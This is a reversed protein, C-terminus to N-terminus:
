LNLRDGPYILDPNRIKPNKDAIEHWSKKGSKRAIKTLNDGQKVQYDGSGGGFVNLPNHGVHSHSDHGEDDSVDHHEGRHILNNLKQQGSGIIGKVTREGSGIAGKVRHDVDEVSRRIKVDVDPNKKRYFMAGAIAGAIAAAGGLVPLWPFGGGDEGDDDREERGGRGKEGYVDPKAIFQGKQSEGTTAKGKETKTSKTVTTKESKKEVRGGGHGEVHDHDALHLTDVGPEAVKVKYKSETVIPKRHAAAVDLDHHVKNYTEAEVSPKLNVEPGDSRGNSTVSSKRYEEM